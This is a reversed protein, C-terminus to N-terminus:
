SSSNCESSSIEEEHSNETRRVNCTAVRGSPEPADNLRNFHEEFALFDMYLQKLRLKILKYKETVYFHRLEETNNVNDLLKDWDKLDQSLLEIEHQIKKIEQKRTTFYVRLNLINAWDNLFHKPNSMM